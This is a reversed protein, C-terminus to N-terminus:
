KEVAFTAEPGESVSGENMMSALAYRRISYRGPELKGLPARFGVFTKKGPDPDVTSDVSFVRVTKGKEDIEAAIKAGRAPSGDASCWGWIFFVFIEEGAKISPLAEKLRLAKLRKEADDATAAFVFPEIGRAGDDQLRAAEAKLSKWEKGTKPGSVVAGDCGKHVRWQCPGAHGHPGPTHGALKTESEAVASLCRTCRWDKADQILGILGLALVLRM